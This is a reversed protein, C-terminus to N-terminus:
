ICTYKFEIQRIARQMFEEQYMNQSLVDYKHCHNGTTQLNCCLNLIESIVKSDFTLTLYVQIQRGGRLPFEIKM